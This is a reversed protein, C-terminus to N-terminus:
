RYKNSSYEEYISKNLLSHYSGFSSSFYGLLKVVNSRIQTPRSFLKFFGYLIPTFIDQIMVDIKRKSFFLRDIRSNVNGVRYRRRLYWAISIRALPIDEFVLAKKNLLIKVGNTSLQKGLLYDTSGTNALSEDFVFHPSTFVSKKVLVNNTYFTNLHEGDKYHPGSFIKSDTVWEPVGPPFSPLVFGQVIDVNSQNASGILERLWNKDPYEDDDIFILYDSGFSMKVLRNRVFPIGKMPEAEFKINISQFKSIITNYESSISSENIVVNILLRHDTPIELYALENLLKSLGRENKYSAICVSIICVKPM